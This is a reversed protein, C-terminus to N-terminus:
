EFRSKILKGDKDFTCSATHKSEAGFSNEAYFQFWIQHNDINDPAERHAIGSFEIDMSRPSKLSKQIDIQCETLIEAETKQGVIYTPPPTSCGVTTVAVLALIALHKM